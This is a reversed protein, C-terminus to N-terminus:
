SLFAASFIPKNFHKSCSLRYTNEFLTSSCHWRLKTNTHLMLVLSKFSDYNAMALSYIPFHVITLDHLKSSSVQNEHMRQGSMRRVWSNMSQNIAVDNIWAGSGHRWSRIEPYESATLSWCQHKNLNQPSSENKFLSQPSTQSWM